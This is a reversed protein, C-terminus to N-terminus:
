KEERIGFQGHRDMQAIPEIKIKIFNLSVFIYLLLLYILLINKYFTIYRIYKARLSYLSDNTVDARHSEGFGTDITAFQSTAFYLFTHKRSESYNQNTGAQEFQSNSKAKVQKVPQVMQQNKSPLYKKGSEVSITLFSIRKDIKLIQHMTM